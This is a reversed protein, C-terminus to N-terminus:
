ALSCIQVRSTKVELGSVLGELVNITELASSYDESVDELVSLTEANHSVAQQITANIGPLRRIASDALARGSDVQQDFGASSSSDCETWCM